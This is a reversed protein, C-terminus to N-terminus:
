LTSRRDSCPRGVIRREPAEADFPGNELERAISESERATAIYIVTHTYRARAAYVHISVSM